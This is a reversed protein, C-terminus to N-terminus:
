HIGSRVSHMPSQLKSYYLSYWWAGLLTRHKHTKHVAAHVISIVEVSSQMCIKISNSGVQQLLRLEHSYTKSSALDLYKNLIPRHLLLCLNLYRLTLITRLRLEIYDDEHLPNEINQSSIQESSTVKLNAPLTREWDMLQHEAKFLPAVTEGVELPKDCGLNQGYLSDIVHWLIKYLRRFENSNLSWLHYFASV